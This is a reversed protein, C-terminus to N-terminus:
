ERKALKRQVANETSRGTLQSKVTTIIESLEQVQARRKTALDAWSEGNAGFLSNYANRSASQTRIKELEAHAIQRATADEAVLSHLHSPRM